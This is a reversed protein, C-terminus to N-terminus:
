HLPSQVAPSGDAVSYSFWHFYRAQLQAYVAPLWSKEERDEAPSYNLLVKFFDMLVQNYAPRQDTVDDRTYQMTFTFGIRAFIEVFSEINECRIMGKNKLHSLFDYYCQKAKTYSIDYLIKAAHPSRYQENHTIRLLQRMLESESENEKTVFVMRTIYNMPDDNLDIRELSDYFQTIRNALFQFLDELIAEKSPYYNYVTPVKVGAEDAIDRVGVDAYCSQSFLKSAALFIKKKNVPYDDIRM